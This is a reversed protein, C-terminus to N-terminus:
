DIKRPRELLEEVEDKSEDQFKGVLNVDKPAEKQSPQLDVHVETQDNEKDDIIINISEEM